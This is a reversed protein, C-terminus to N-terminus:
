ESIKIYLENIGDYFGITVIAYNDEVGPYRYKLFNTTKELLPNDADYEELGELELYDSWKKMIEKPKLTEWTEETRVYFEYIKGTEADMYADLVRRSKDANQQSTSLTVKWVTMNNRPDLVDIASYMEASYAEQSVELVDVPLIGLEKMRNLEVNCVSFIESAKIEKETPGQHNVVFAYTGTLEEYENNDISLRNKRSQETEPIIRNRLCMALIYLRDNSNLTYRYGEAVREMPEIEIKNLTARDKYDAIREPGWISLGLVMLVSFLIMGYKFIQKM